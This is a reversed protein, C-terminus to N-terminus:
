MQPEPKNGYYCAGGCFGFTIFIAIIIELGQLWGILINFLILIVLIITGWCFFMYNSEDSM